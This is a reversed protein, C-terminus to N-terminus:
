LKTEQHSSSTM